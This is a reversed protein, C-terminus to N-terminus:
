RRGVGRVTEANGTRAASHRRPIPRAAAGDEFLTSQVLPRYYPQQRMHLPVLDCGTVIILTMTLFSWLFLRKAPQGHNEM